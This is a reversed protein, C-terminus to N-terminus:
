ASATRVNKDEWKKKTLLRTSDKMQKKALAIIMKLGM